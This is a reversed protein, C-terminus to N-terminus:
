YIILSEKDWSKLLSEWLPLPSISFRNGFLFDSIRASCAWVSPPMYFSFSSFSPVYMVNCIKRWSQQTLPFIVTLFILPWFLYYFLFDALWMRLRPISRSLTVGWESQNWSHHEHTSPLWRSGLDKKLILQCFRKRERGIATLNGRLTEDASSVGEVWGCVWMLVCVHVCACLCLGPAQKVRSNKKALEIDLFRITCLLSYLSVQTKRGEM